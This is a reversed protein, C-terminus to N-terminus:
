NISEKRYESPSMDTKGAFFKSFNLQDYFGVSNAVEGITLNTTKLLKKATQLRKLDIYQKPSFGTTNIFIKYLYPQSIGIARTIDNVTIHTHLNANIYNEAYRFYTDTSKENLKDGGIHSNLMKFFLELLVTPEVLNNKTNKITHIVQEIEYISDFSFIGGSDASYKKFLEQMAMDRSAVWVYEWPDRADPYYHQYSNPTILFGQGASVINGNFFGSGKTVYHICFYDRVGPGFRNTADYSTGINDIKLLNTSSDPFLIYAM